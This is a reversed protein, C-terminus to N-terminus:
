TITLNAIANKSINIENFIPKGMNIYRDQDGYEDIKLYQTLYGSKEITIDWYENYSYNALGAGVFDKYALYGELELTLSGTANTTGSYTNGNKDVSTITVDALSENENETVYFNHNFLFSYNVYYQPTAVDNYLIKVISNERDSVCNHCYVNFPQSQTGYWDEYIDQSEVGDNYFNLNKLHTDPSYDSAIFMAIDTNYFNCDTLNRNPSPYRWQFYNTDVFTFGGYEGEARNGYITMSIGSNYPSFDGLSRAGTLIFGGGSHFFKTNKVSSDLTLWIRANIINIISNYFYFNYSYDMLIESGYITLSKGHFVDVTDVTGAVTEFVTGFIEFANLVNLAADNDGSDGGKISYRDSYNGNARMTKVLDVWTDSGSTFEIALKGHTMNFETGYSIIDYSSNCYDNDMWAIEPHLQFRTTYSTSSPANGDYLNDGDFIESTKGSYCRLDFNDYSGYYRDTWRRHGYTCDVPSADPNNLNSWSYYEGTVNNIFSYNDWRCMIIIGKADAKCMTTGDPVYFGSVYNSGNIWGWSMNIYKHTSNTTINWEESAPSVGNGYYGAGVQFFCNFYYTMNEELETGGGTNALSGNIIPKPYDHVVVQASAISILFVCSLFILIYKM